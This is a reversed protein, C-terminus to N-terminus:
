LYFFRVIKIALFFCSISLVFSLTAYIIASVYENKECLLGFELAFSSFTTFGGLFGSILFYRLNDSINLQLNTVEILIGTVFCGLINVFLIPLPIGWFAVPLLKGVATRSIAGIAGGLGIFIYHLFM